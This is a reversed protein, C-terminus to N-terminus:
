GDFIGNGKMFTQQILPYQEIKKNKKVLYNTVAGNNFNEYLKLTRENTADIVKYTHGFIKTVAPIIKIREFNLVLSIFDKTMLKILRTGIQHPNDFPLINARSQHIIRGTDIGEDMYMFTYGEFHFENNVLCHFNTGAGFYYPSLGLHVNIIKKEFRKILQSRIISCGYTIILDPALDIIKEVNKQNNIEGKKLFESSSNDDCVEIVDSFFDYETNHRATFHQAANDTLTSEEIARDICSFEDESDVFTKIVNIGDCQSFM